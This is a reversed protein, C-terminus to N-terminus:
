RGSPFANAWAAPVVRHVALGVLLITAWLGPQLLGIVPELLTGHPVITSPDVATWLDVLLRLGFSHVHLLLVALVAVWPHGDPRDLEVALLIVAPLLVLVLDQTYAKPALLPAVAVGLAFTARRTTADDARRAALTLGVLALLGVIRVPLSLAGLVYLPRYYAPMWLEPTRPDAGWGKGWTLVDFYALHTEVGFIAVSAVFLGAATALGGMLRRRDQLMHAGATAYYLKMSSGITTLAGSAYSRFRRGVAAPGSTEADAGGGDAVATGADDADPETAGAEMSAFAFCLAATLITPVQGMKFTFVLPHFGFLAGLLVFREWIRLRYGLAAAVAEVGLWLAILSVGGLITGARYFPFVTFPVFFLLTIPPYLYSGHYNGDENMEYIAEPDGWHLPGSELWADVTGSYVGYDFYRFETGIELTKFHVDLVPWVLLVALTLGALAATGPYRAWLRRFRDPVWM